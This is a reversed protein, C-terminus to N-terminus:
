WLKILKKTKNSVKIWVYYLYSEANTFNSKLYDKGIKNWYNKIKM